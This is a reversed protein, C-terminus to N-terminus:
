RVLVARCNACSVAADGRLPARNKAGCFACAIELRDDRRTAKQAGCRICSTEDVATFKRCNPCRSARPPRSREGAALIREYAARIKKFREGAAAAQAAGQSAFRDPHNERALERYREKVQELSAGPALDLLAFDAEAVGNVVVVFEERLAEIERKGLGLGGAAALMAADGAPQLRGRALVVRFLLYVVHLRERRSPEAGAMLQEAARRPAPTAGSDATQLEADVALMEAATFGFDHAFWSHIARRAPEELIGGSAERAVAVGLRCLSARHERARAAAFPEGTLPPASEPNAGRGRFKRHAVFGFIGGLVLGVKTKTLWIGAIAGIAIAVFVGDFARARL